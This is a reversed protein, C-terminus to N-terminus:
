AIILQAHKGKAHDALVSKNQDVLTVTSLAHWTHVRALAENFRLIRTLRSMNPRLVQITSTSSTVIAGVNVTTRHM